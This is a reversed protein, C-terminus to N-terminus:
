VKEQYLADTVPNLALLRPTSGPMRAMLTPEQQITQFGFRAEYWSMLYSKSLNTNDGYPQPTLLLVIGAKDAERCVKHMLSTAYGKGQEAAPVELEVIERTKERMRHPLANCQRVRCTAYGVKREGSPMPNVDDM